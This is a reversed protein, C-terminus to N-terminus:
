IVTFLFITGKSLLDGKRVEPNLTPVGAIVVLPQLFFM